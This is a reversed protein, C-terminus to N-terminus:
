AKHGKCKSSGRNFYWRPLARKMNILIEEYIDVWDSFNKNVGNCLIANEDELWNRVEKEAKNELMVDIKM